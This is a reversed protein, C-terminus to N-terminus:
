YLLSALKGRAANVRPDPGVVEFMELLRARIVARDEDNAAAFMDLLRLFADEIHGGSLDLDAVRMQAELDNPNAAADQRINELTHGSLRLLLKTQALAEKARADAPAKQLVLEWERVATEYDGREAAEFAALHAEPIQPEAPPPVEGNADPASVRGVVGNEEALQILRVFYERVEQEPVPGQFLPVPRETIMAVVSPIAQIQFAQALGPNNDVDVRALLVRGQLEYTVQKLIASVETSHESRASWMDFIVPVVASLPAIQGFTADSVDLVLSPVDITQPAGQPAEPATAGEAGGDVGHAAAQQQAAAQAAHRQALHSLDVGGTPIRQPMENAM